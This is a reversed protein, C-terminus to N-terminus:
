IKKVSDKIILKGNILRRGQVYEKCNIKKILMEVAMKAMEPMNVEVTTIAPECIDSMLFNDFGVVSIDDPVSYGLEKLKRIAYYATEDCNCVFATPMEEPFVIEITKGNEDRDDIVWDKRYDFNNEVIAKLYGMFRDQISSTANVSGIFGIKKHGMQILYDALIYTDYFNDTLVTDINRHKDYFDLFILIDSYQSTIVDAYSNHIQGLVIVGDVKNESLMKPLRCADEDEQKLLEMICYYNNNMLEHATNNYLTWYFSNNREVFREPILVGINYTKDSKQNKAIGGYHYGMEDAAAIIKNRLDESVGDKGSLAKSVTVNSVGFRAAIDAMKVSKKM